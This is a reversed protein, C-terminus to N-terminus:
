VWRAADVAASWAERINGSGRALGERAATRSEEERQTLQRGEAQLAVARGQQRRAEQQGEGQLRRLQLAAAALQSDLMHCAAVAQAHRLKKSVGPPLGSLSPLGQKPASVLASPPRATGLPMNPLPLTGPIISILHFMDQPRGSSAMPGTPSPLVASGAQSYRRFSGLVQDRSDATLPPPVPPALPVPLPMGM